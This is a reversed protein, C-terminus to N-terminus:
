LSSVREILIMAALMALETCQLLYGAIDGSIGGFRRRSLFFVYVACVLAFFAMAAGTWGGLVCLGAACLVFWIVAAPSARGAASRFTYLLGSESASPFSLSAFASVSRSTVPILCVLWIERGDRPLATALAFFALAYSCLGILAFAGTHSDKLIERSREPPAHSALADLTDCFGDLHIGGTYAVPILFIGAAFIITNLSLEVSLWAWLRLLLGLVIGVIPFLLLTSRMNDPLWKIRPMPLKSYMSFAMIVSRIVNM